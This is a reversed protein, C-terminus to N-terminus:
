PGCRRWAPSILWAEGTGGRVRMTKSATSCTACPITAGASTSAGRQPAPARAAGEEAGAGNSTGEAGPAPQLYRAREEMIKLCLVIICGVALGFYFPHKKMM